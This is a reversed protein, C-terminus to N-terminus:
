LNTDSASVYPAPPIRVLLEVTDPTVQEFPCTMASLEHTKFTADKEISATIVRRGRYSQYDCATYYSPRYKQRHGKAMAYIHGFTSMDDVYLVSSASPSPLLGRRVDFPSLPPSQSQGRGNPAM